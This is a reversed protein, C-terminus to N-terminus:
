SWERVRPLRAEVSRYLDPYCRKLWVVRGYQLNNGDLALGVRLDKGTAGAARLRTYVPNEEIHHRALYATVDLDRWSWIPSHTLTGDARTITGRGPALLAKRVKSEDARLGWLEANGFRRRATTAPQTVLAHHLDPTSWDPERDHDWAGSQEMISLADPTAEIIHLNLNWLDALHHIYTHTDPFELGSDFWVVPIDPSIRSALHTVVTSDRGGSWTVYGGHANLHTRTTAAAAAFRDRASPLHAAVAAPDLGNM